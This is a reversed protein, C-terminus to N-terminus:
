LTSLQAPLGQHMIAIVSHDSPHLGNKEWKSTEEGGREGSQTAAPYCIPRQMLVHVHQMMKYLRLTTCEGFLCKVHLLLYHYFLLMLWEAPTAPMIRMKSLIM